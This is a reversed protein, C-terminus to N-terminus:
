NTVAVKVKSAIHRAARRGSFMGDALSLGSIYSNSCIGVATRGAAYLGLSRTLM